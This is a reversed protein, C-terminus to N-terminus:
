GLQFRGVAQKLSKALAELETARGLLTSSAVHNNESMSAIREVRQAIETGAQRQERLAGTIEAIVERVQSASQELALVSERARAAHLTGNSALQKGESMSQVAENANGQVRQIMASIEHTSQATREALKRVEDAVVAFGRGQEGARAAEIAANLALLNTQGAIDQIVKVIASISEASNFLEAMIAASETMRGAILDIATSAETIVAMGDRVQDAAKSALRDADDAHESVQSISVSLEEVSAAISAAADSQESSAQEIHEEHERMVVVADNVADADERIDRVTGSLGNQMEKMAALLSDPAASAVQIAARLDGNAITRAVGAAYAPEGGLQSFLRKAMLVAFTTSLLIALVAIGIAIIRGRDLEDVIVERTETTAAALFKIQGLLIDRMTRWMPTEQQVLMEMAATGQGSRVLQIVQSRLPAWNRQVSSIAEATEPGGDLLAANSKIREALADFQEEARKFNDFGTQNTPDLLINRLAQGMQLGQAYASTVDREMALEADIFGVMRQQVSQMQWIAVVIAMIFLGSTVATLLFLQKRVSMPSQM